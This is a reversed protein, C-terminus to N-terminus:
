KDKTRWQATKTILNSIINEFQKAMYPGMYCGYAYLLFGMKNHWEFSEALFFAGIGSFVSGIFYRLYGLWSVQNDTADHIHAYYGTISGSVLTTILILAQILLDDHWALLLRDM